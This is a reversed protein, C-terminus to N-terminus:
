HFNFNLDSGLDLFTISSISICLDVCFNVCKLLLILLSIFDKEM